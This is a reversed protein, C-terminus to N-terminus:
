RGQSGEGGSVQRACFWPQKMPIGEQEKPVKQSCGTVVFHHLHAPQDVIAEGYVIHFVDHEEDNFNFVFDQYVTQRKPITYNKIRWAVSRQEEGPNFAARKM